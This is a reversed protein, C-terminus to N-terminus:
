RLYDNNKLDLNMPVSPVALRAFILDFSIGSMELFIIPVFADPVPTLNEIAGEPAMKQLIPPVGLTYIGSGTVWFDNAFVEYTPTVGLFLSVQVM